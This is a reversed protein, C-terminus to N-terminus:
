LQQLGFEVHAEFQNLNTGLGGAMGEPEGEMKTKRAHEQGEM